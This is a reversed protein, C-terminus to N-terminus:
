YEEEHRIAPSHHAEIGMIGLGDVVITAMTAALAPETRATDAEKILNAVRNIIVVLDAQLPAMGVLRNAMCKISDQIGELAKSLSVMVKRPRTRSCVVLRLAQADEVLNDLRRARDMRAKPPLTMRASLTRTPMLIVVEVKNVEKSNTILAQIDRNHAGSCMLCMVMGVRLM